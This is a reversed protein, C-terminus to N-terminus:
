NLMGKLLELIKKELRSVQVQSIGLKQAVKQQTEGSYYRMWILDKERRPLQKLASYLSIKEVTESERDNDQSVIRDILRNESGDEDDYEKFLSEPTRSADMAHIVNEPEEGLAEALEKISPPRGMDQELKESIDRAKISLEKLSRSVKIIGDDRFYRRIEGLIMPVAYTSFQVNFSLDFKDVAKILGICGIQFLDETEVNRNRFRRVVSWVLGTNKDILANRADVDGNQARKVLDLSSEHSTNNM